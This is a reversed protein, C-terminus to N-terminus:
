MNLSSISAEAHKRLKKRAESLRSLKLQLERLVTSEISDAEDLLKLVETVNLTEDIKFSASRASVFTKLRDSVVTLNNQKPAHSSADLDVDMGSTEATKKENIVPESEISTDLVISTELKDMEEEVSGMSLLKKPKPSKTSDTTQEKTQEEFKKIFCLFNEM